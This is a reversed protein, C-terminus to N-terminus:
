PNNPATLRQSCHSQDCALAVNVEGDHSAAQGHETIYVALVSGPSSRREPNVYESGLRQAGAVHQVYLSGVILTTATTARITKMLIMSM